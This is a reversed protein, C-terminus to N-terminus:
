LDSLIMLLLVLPLDVAVTRINLLLHPLLHYLEGRIHCKFIAHGRFRYLPDVSRHDATVKERDRVM